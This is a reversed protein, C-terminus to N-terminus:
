AGIVHQQGAQNEVLSVMQEAMVRWSHARLAASVPLVLRRWGELDARWALLRAVLEEASDPDDLILGALDAVALLDFVRDTFGILRVREALGAKGVREQWPALARGGSAAVLDVDWSGQRCL